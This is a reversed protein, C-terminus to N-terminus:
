PLTLPALSTDQGPLPKMQVTAIMEKLGADSGNHRSKYLETLKAMWEIEQKQYAQKTQPTADTYSIARAYADMILDVISSVKELAVKSEPTEPKGEYETKYQARQTEFDQGYLVALYFYVVPDKKPAGDYQAAKGLYKIADKPATRLVMAGLSYNLWGLTEDKGSFPKWDNPVKGGEILQIAKKAHAIAEETNSSDGAAAAPMGAYGLATLVKINEPDTELVQKGIQFADAYKKAKYVDVLVEVGHMDAAYIEMWDKIEKSRSDKGDPDKRVFEAGADNSAKRAAADGNMGKKFTAYLEDLSKKSDQIGPMFFESHTPSALAQGALVLLTLSLALNIRFIVMKM